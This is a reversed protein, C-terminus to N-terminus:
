RLIRCWELLGRRSHGGCTEAKMATMERRHHELMLEQRYSTIKNAEIKTAKAANQAMM